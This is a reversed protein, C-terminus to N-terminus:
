CVVCDDYSNIGFYVRHRVCQNLFDLVSSGILGLLHEVYGNGTVKGLGDHYPVDGYATIRGNDHM